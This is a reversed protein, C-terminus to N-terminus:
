VKALYVREVWRGRGDGHGLDTATRALAERRTLGDEQQYRDVANQAFAARLQHSTIGAYPTINRYWHNRVATVASKLNKQPMLHGNKQAGIQRAEAVAQQAAARDPIRVERPRGGKTGFSISIHNGSALQKTWTDLSAGARIAEQIRLGCTAQLHVIAALGSNVRSAAEYAAVQQDGTAPARTGARSANNIGFAANAIGASDALGDRGAARLSARIASLQTQLTRNTIGAAQQERVFAAIHREKITDIGQVQQGRDYASEIVSRMTNVRAQITLHSGGAAKAAKTASSLAQTRQSM